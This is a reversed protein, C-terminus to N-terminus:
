EEGAKSQNSSFDNINEAMVAIDYTPDKVNLLEKHQFIFKTTEKMEEQQLLYDQYTKMIEELGKLLDETYFMPFHNPTFKPIAEGKPWVAAIAGNAIAEQLSGSNELVPIFLGKPQPAEALVSVTYFQIREDDIGSTKSFLGSVDQYKLM